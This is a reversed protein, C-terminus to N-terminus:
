KKIVYWKDRNWENSLGNEKYQISYESMMWWTRVYTNTGPMTKESKKFNDKSLALLDSSHRGVATDSPGRITDSM